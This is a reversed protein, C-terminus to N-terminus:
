PAVLVRYLAYIGVGIVITRLAAEPLRRAASGGAYGGVVAGVAVVLWASWEVLGSAAFVIAAAANAATAVANKVANASQLNGIERFSTIVALYAIGQGAGFYGSYVGVGGVVPMEAWRATRLQWRKLLPDLAVAVCALGILWPVVLGFVREPLLVVLFAGLAGGVGAAMLWALLRRSRGRTLARLERRYAWTGAASGPLLAACNTANAAVPSLGSALLAPYTLLSGSGVASNVAGALVGVAALILLESVTVQRLTPGFPEM